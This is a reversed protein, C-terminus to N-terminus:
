ASTPAFSAVSPAELQMSYLVGEGCTSSSASDGLSIERSEFAGDAKSEALESEIGPSVEPDFPVEVDAACALSLRLGLISAIRMSAKM